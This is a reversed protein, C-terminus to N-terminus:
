CCKNIQGGFTQQQSSGLQPVKSSSCTANPVQYSAHKTVHKTSNYNTCKTPKVFISNQMCVQSFKLITIQYDM